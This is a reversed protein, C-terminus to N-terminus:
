GFYNMITLDNSDMDTWTGRVQFDARINGSSPLDYTESYLYNRMNPHYTNNEDNCSAVHNGSPAPNYEAIHWLNGGVPISSGVSMGQPNGNNFDHNFDGLSINDVLLGFMAANDATNYAPDSGFVFRIMVEQAAFDSLDVTVDQWGNSSGGWGPVGIGEGNYGFGYMSTCNYPLGTPQLINWNEGDVSIRINAGDWGDYDQYVGPDEMNFNVKFSLQSSSAPVTILPTQLFILVGDTYGGNTGLEPNGMYWSYGTEEYTLATNNTLHWQHPPLTADETIWNGLGNEFDESFIIEETARLQLTEEQNRTARLVTVNEALLFSTLALCVLFLLFSKKM